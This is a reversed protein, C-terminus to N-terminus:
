ELDLIKDWFICCHCLIRTAVTELAAVVARNIDHDIFVPRAGLVDLGDLLTDPGVVDQGPGDILVVVSTHKYLFISFRLNLSKIM